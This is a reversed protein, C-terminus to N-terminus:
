DFRMKLTSYASRSHQQQQPQQKDERLALLALLRPSKKLQVLQVADEPRQKCVLQAAAAAAAAIYLIERLALLALLRTGGELQVL